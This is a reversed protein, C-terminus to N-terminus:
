EEAEVRVLRVKGTTVDRDFVQWYSGIDARTFSPWEITVTIEERGEPLEMPM